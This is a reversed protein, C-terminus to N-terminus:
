APENQMKKLYTEAEAQKPCITIFDCHKCRKSVHPEYTQDAKIHDVKELLEETVPEYLEDAVDITYWQNTALYLYSAKYVPVSQNARIIMAYILLQEDSIEDANFQGTKYDIVHLGEADQDVRDIRGVVSVDNRLDTDYYDELMVPTVAMDNKYVYVKLMQLARLGYDREEDLSSFGKRNEKWRRRLIQELADYTRQAPEVQEYFDKLSNHVHAGMTLYPKPTKYEDALHDVYTFKFQRPCTEYMNLKFASARFM